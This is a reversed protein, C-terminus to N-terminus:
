FRHPPYSASSLIERPRIPSQDHQRHCSAHQRTLCALRRLISKTKLRAKDSVLWSGWGSLGRREDLTDCMWWDRSVLARHHGKGDCGGSCPSASWTYIDPFTLRVVSIDFTPHQFSAISHHHARKKQKEKCSHPPADWSATVDHICANMDSFKWQHLFLALIFDKLARWWNEEWSLKEFYIVTFWNQMTELWDFRLVSTGAFRGACYSKFWRSRASGVVRVGRGGSICACCWGKTERTMEEEGVLPQAAQLIHPWVVDCFIAILSRSNEHRCTYM